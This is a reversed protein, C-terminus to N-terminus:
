RVENQYIVISCRQEQSQEVVCQLHFLFSVFFSLLPRQGLLEPLTRKTRIHPKTNNARKGVLFKVAEGTKPPVSQTGRDRKTVVNGILHHKVIWWNSSQHAQTEQGEGM